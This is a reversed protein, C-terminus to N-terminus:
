KKIEGDISGIQLPFASVYKADGRILFSHNPFDDPILFDPSGPFFEPFYYGQL